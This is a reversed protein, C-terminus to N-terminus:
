LVGGEKWHPALSGVLTGSTGKLVCKGKQWAFSGCTEPLRVSLVTFGSPSGPFRHSGDCSRRCRTM